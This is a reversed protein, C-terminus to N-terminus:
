VPVIPKSKVVDMTFFFEGVFEVAFTPFARSFLARWQRAFFADLREKRLSASSLVRVPVLVTRQPIRFNVRQTFYSFEANHGHVVQGLKGVVAVARARSVIDFDKCALSEQRLGRYGIGLVVRREVVGIEIPKIVLDAIFDFAATSLNEADLEIVLYLLLKIGPERAEGHALATVCVGNPFFYGSVEVELDHRAPNGDRIQADLIDVFVVILNLPAIEFKGGLVITWTPERLLGACAELEIGSSTFGIPEASNPIVPLESCRDEAKLNHADWFVFERLEAGEAVGLHLGTKEVEHRRMGTIEREPLEKVESM